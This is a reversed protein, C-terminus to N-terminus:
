EWILSIRFEHCKNCLSQSPWVEATKGNPLQLFVRETGRFIERDKASIRLGYAGPNQKGNSWAVASVITGGQM